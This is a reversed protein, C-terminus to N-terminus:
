TANGIYYVDICLIFIDQFALRATIQFPLYIYFFDLSATSGLIQFCYLRVAWCHESQRDPLSPFCLSLDM